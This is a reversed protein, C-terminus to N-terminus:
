RLLSRRVEDDAQKLGREVTQQGLQIAQLPTTV